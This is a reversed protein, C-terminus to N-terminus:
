ELLDPEGQQEAEYQGSEELHEDGPLQEDVPHALLGAQLVDQNHPQHAQSLGHPVYITKGTAAESKFAPIPTPGSSVNMVALDGRGVIRINVHSIGNGPQAKTM